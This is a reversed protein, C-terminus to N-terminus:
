PDRASDSSFWSQEYARAPDPSAEVGHSPALWSEAGIRPPVGLHDVTMRTATQEAGANGQERETETTGAGWREGPMKPGATAMDRNRRMAPQALQRAVCLQQKGGIDTMQGFLSAFTKPAIRELRRWPLKWSESALRPEDKANM